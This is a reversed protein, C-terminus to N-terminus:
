KIPSLSNMHNPSADVVSVESIATADPLVVANLDIPAVQKVSETLFVQFVDGWPWLWCSYVWGSSTFFSSSSSKKSSVSVNTRGWARSFSSVRSCPSSPLICLSFTMPQMYMKWCTSGTNFWSLLFNWVTLTPKLWVPGVFQWWDGSRNFLELIVELRTNARLLQGWM